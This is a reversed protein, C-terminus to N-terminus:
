KVTCKYVAHQYRLVILYSFFASFSRYACRYSCHPLVIQRGLSSAKKPRLTAQNQAHLNSSSSRSNPYVTRASDEAMLGPEVSDILVHENELEMKIRLHSALEAGKKPMPAPYCLLRPIHTEMELALQACARFFRMINQVYLCKFPFVISLLHSPFSIYRNLM